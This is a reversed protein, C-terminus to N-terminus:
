SGLWRELGEERKRDGSTPIGCIRAVTGPKILHTSQVLAKKICALCLLRDVSSRGPGARNLHNRVVTMLVSNADSQLLLSVTHQAKQTCLGPQPIPVFQSSRDVVGPYIIKTFGHMGHPNFHTCHYVSSFVLLM